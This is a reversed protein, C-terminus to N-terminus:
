LVILAPFGTIDVLIAATRVKDVLHGQNLLADADM